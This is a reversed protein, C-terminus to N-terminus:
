QAQDPALLGHNILCEAWGQPGTFHHAHWGRARAAAINDTRDDTFLLRDPAIGCDQEVMEYIRPEPKIVRMHGSVYSRDFETLFPYIPRAMDFTQVGFNTLTFTPVQNARLARLLRVSHDIVPGTLDIWHDRWIELEAQWDPYAAITEAMIDHFNEGRDSRDNMGHLDIADFFDRRRDPGIKRDFYLEPQWGILVNGIDFIGAEITM